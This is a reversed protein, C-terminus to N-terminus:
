CTSRVERDVFSKVMDRLQSHEDTPNFHKSMYGAKDGVLDNHGADDDDDDNDDDDDDDNYSNTSFLARGRNFSAKNNKSLVDVISRQLFSHHFLKSKSLSSSSTSSSLRTAINIANM